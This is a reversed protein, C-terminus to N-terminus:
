SWHSLDRSIYSQLKRNSKKYVNKLYDIDKQTMDPKYEGFLFSQVLRRLKSILQPALSEMENRFLHWIKRIVYYLRSYKTYKTKNLHVDTKPTFSDDVGIHKYISRAVKKPHFRLDRNLVVQIQNRGFVAEYRILHEIYHGQRVIDQGFDSEQDRIAKSFSKQPSGKGHHIYYHYQSFAREVPDRVICILKPSGLVSKIRRPAKESQLLRATGEGIAKEGNYHSFHSAFWHVDRDFRRNFFMTETPRSFCVEPHQTALNTLTSTGCKEAGIILFNPLILDGDMSETM